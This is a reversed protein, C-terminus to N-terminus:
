GNVKIVLSGGTDGAACGTFLGYGGGKKVLEEILEMVLRGVTPGQPHGFILSCGYNNMGMVDVQFEKAFYVDNAVFPNHTKIATMDKITLGAQQLAMRAAPVPAMPMLGAGARAFGYSLLQIEIAPNASLEKAKERTTLIIGCNGDAPHTQAGTSHTGDQIAPKASALGEKTRPTIGEDQELLGFEKRAKKYEAPFMYEKQFARDNAMGDMYQEYRRLAVADIHDKTVNGMSKVVREATQIMPIRGVPDYSINDIMWNESVVLGGMGSPNPWITHPSNSTKDVGLYLVTAYIGTEIGVAAANICATGTSCAQPIHCAAIDEAGIMYAAWPAAYFMRHCAISLGLFLYDFMKADFGRTALWRKTTAAGLEVPHENQLTGQWRAFPSSFYGKYPIFTQSYM